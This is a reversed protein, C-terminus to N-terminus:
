VAGPKRSHFSPVTETKGSKLSRFAADLVLQNRWGEEGPIEFDRGAEIADAFADVQVAYADANSVQQREVVNGNQRLEITPPDDVSLANAASLVGTEGAVELFTRYPSRASVSVTALMGSHFELLMAATAEVKWYKDYHALASVASVEDALVYRLTDVCHVGVDALPGGTAMQPDNIWKRASSLLPALFDARAVVPQGIAGSAIKRRVLQVSEEFRMIQAVGLMVGAARAAEVMARAEDANRAMPKECLVPKRHSVAELVDRIHLADPTAVFVADVQSSACLEATSAFAQEIGFEKASSQAKDLSRRSLAVVRCRQARQFGPMLRKVAHLGFGAIGFRIM